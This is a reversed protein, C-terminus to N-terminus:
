GISAEISQILHHANLEHVLKGQDDGLGVLIPGLNPATCRALSGDPSAAAIPRIGAVGHVVFALQCDNTEDNLVVLSGLNTETAQLELYSSLDVVTVIDGRINAVGSLWRPVGPLPTIPVSRLVERVNRIPLAFRSGALQFLLHRDRVDRAPLHQRIVNAAPVDWSVGTELDGLTRRGVAPRVECTLAATTTSCPDDYGDVAAILSMSGPAFGVLRVHGEWTCDRELSEIMWEIREGSIALSGQQTADQFVLEQPLSLTVVFGTAAILGTNKVVVRCTVEADVAMTEPVALKIELQTAVTVFEVTSYVPPVNAATVAVQWRTSGVPSHPFQLDIVQTQGVRICETVEPVRVAEANNGYAAIRIGKGDAEGRNTVVLRVHVPQGARVVAPVECTLSLRPLALPGQAIRVLAPTYRFLEAEPTLVIRVGIVIPVGPDIQGLNWKLGRTTRQAPHTTQVTGVEPPLAFEVKCERSFTHSRNKIEFRYTRVTDPDSPNHPVEHEVVQWDESRLASLPQPTISPTPRDTVAVSQPPIRTVHRIASESAAKTASSEPRNTRASQYQSFAAGLDLNAWSSLLSGKLVGSDAAVLWSPLPNAPTAEDLISESFTSDDAAM